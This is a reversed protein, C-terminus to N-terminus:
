FLTGSEHGISTGNPNPSDCPRWAGDTIVPNCGEPKIAPVATAQFAALRKVLRAVIDPHQGALDRYECPDATVNFLCYEGTCETQDPPTSPQEQINCPLQYRTTHPNQGPPPHWGFENAPHEHGLRLIKWDGVILANGHAQDQEPAHCELVVERRVERGTALTALVDQGDGLLYPPEGRPVHGEFYAPDGSAYHLLTPLWDTAHMKAYSVVGRAIGPGRVAAVGRTGGEWLTNKGGRMPYNNSQTGENFNTPGGNDTSFILLTNDEYGNERLARTLNGIAEDMIAVMAAVAQRQKVGGTNNAFRDMYEQPAELPWHVNQYALYMFWPSSPDKRFGRIMDIAKATFLPTSYSGNAAFDTKLNDSL